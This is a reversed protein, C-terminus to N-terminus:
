LNVLEESLEWLRQSASPDYSARSSAKSKNRVFYQGTTGEVDPSSALYVLTEAGKEPPITFWKMAKVMPNPRDTARDVAFQTNVFGPHLCNVTVGSGKLRRSLEYTFLVNALKSQAYAIWPSYKKQSQLDNFNIRGGIHAGSSVVVIRAPSSAKLLDLLLNTLLFPGLHNVGIQYEFGDKTQQRTEVYIGANNVLDDLRNYRSKFTQVFERVSALDALDCIMLDVLSNGSAAIVEQRAKEGKNVDRCVMVVHFGSKALELSAAKGIGSNAGTILIVKKEM